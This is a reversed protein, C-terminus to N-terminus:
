KQAVTVMSPKPRRIFKLSTGWVDSGDSFGAKLASFFFGLFAGVIYLPWLFFLTYWGGSRQAKWENLDCKPCTDGYFQISCINCKKLASENTEPM